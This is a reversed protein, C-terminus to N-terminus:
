LHATRRQAGASAGGPANGDLVDAQAWALFM